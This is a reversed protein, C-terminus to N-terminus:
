HIMSSAKLVQTIELPKLDFNIIQQVFTAKDLNTFLPVLYSNFFANWEVLERKAKKAEILLAELRTHASINLLTLFKLKLPGASCVFRDLQQPSADILSSLANMLEPSMPDNMSPCRSHLTLRYDFWPLILTVVQSTPLVSSWEKIFEIMEPSTMSNEVSILFTGFRLLEDQDRTHDFAFKQCFKPLDDKLLNTTLYLSFCATAKLINFRTEFLIDDLLPLFGKVKLQKAIDVLARIASGSTPVNFDKLQIYNIIAEFLSPPYNYQLTDISGLFARVYMGPIKYSSQGKSSPQTNVLVIQGLPYSYILYKDIFDKIVQSWANAILSKNPQIIGSDDKPKVNDKDCMEISTPINTTFTTKQDVLINSIDELPPFDLIEINKSLPTWNCTQIIGVGCCDGGEDTSAIRTDGDIDYGIIFVDKHICGMRRLPCLFPLKRPHRSLAIDIDKQLLYGVYERTEYNIDFPCISRTDDFENTVVIEEGMHFFFYEHAITWDANNSPTGICALMGKSSVGIVTYREHKPGVHIIQFRQLGLNGWEFLSSTNSLTFQKDQVGQGSRFSFKVTELLFSKYGLASLSLRDKVDKMVVCGNWGPSELVIDQNVNFGLVLWLKKPEEAISWPEFLSLNAKNLLDIHQFVKIGNKSGKLQRITFTETM